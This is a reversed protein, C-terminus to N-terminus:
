GNKAQPIYFGLVTAEREQSKSDHWILLEVLRAKQLEAKIHALSSWHDTEQRGKHAVDKAVADAKKM